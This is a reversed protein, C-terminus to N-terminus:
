NELNFKMNILTTCDPMCVQEVEYTFHNRILQQRVMDGRLGFNGPPPIEHDDDDNDDDDDGDNDAFSFYTFHIICLYILVNVFM